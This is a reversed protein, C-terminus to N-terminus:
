LNVKWCSSVHDNIIGIAQLHSYITVTGVFKFGRKKLDQTVRNSLESSTPIDSLSKPNNRIIKHNTFSWIYKDFSGIEHQVKIFLKANTVAAELKKRNRILGQNLMLEDIQEPTFKAVKNVDFNAFAQRYNERKSLVTYWSLGAQMTELLLFEFHTQEDHVAVGGENDHYNRYLDNKECWACRIKEQM